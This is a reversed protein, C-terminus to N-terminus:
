KVLAIEALLDDLNVQKKMVFFPYILYYFVIISLTIFIILLCVFLPLDNAYQTVFGELIGASITFPFTSIVVKLAEKGKILFSQKRTISGPFLIATGMLLGAGGEIAASFIEMSGHIWIAQISKLLVNENYFMTQFSGVMVGNIFMIYLSGIGLFLGYFFSQLGVWLNNLTIRISSFTDESLTKNQYVATPNRNKINELTQDVYQDGLISRSFNEDYLTSLTGLAVCLIFFILATYFYYRNKYMILPVEKTWLNKIGIWDRRPSYIKHYANSTLSNLYINLNSKPYYTQVFSLDNNLKIFANRLIEPNKNSSALIGEIEIWKEKNQKIFAIERM